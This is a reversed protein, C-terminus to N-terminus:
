FAELNVIGSATREQATKEDIFLDLAYDGHLSSYSVALHLRVNDPQPAPQFDLVLTSNALHSQKYGAATEVATKLVQDLLDLQKELTMNAEPSAESSVWVVAGFQLSLQQLLQSVKQRLAVYDAGKYFSLQVAVLKDEVWLPSIEADAEFLTVTTKALVEAKIDAKATGLVYDPLQFDAAILYSHFFACVLFTLFRM